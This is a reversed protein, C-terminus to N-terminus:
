IVTKFASFIIILIFWVPCKCVYKESFHEWHQRDNWMKFLATQLHETVQYHPMMALPNSQNVDFSIVDFIGSCNLRIRCYIQRLLVSPESWHSHPGWHKSEFSRLLSCMCIPWKHRQIIQWMKFVQEQAWSVRYDIVSHMCSLLFVVCVSAHFISQKIQLKKCVWKIDVQFIDQHKLWM